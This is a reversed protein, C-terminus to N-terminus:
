QRVAALYESLIGLNEVFTRCEIVQRTDDAKGHYRLRGAEVWAGRDDQAAVIERVQTEFQPTIKRPPPLKPAQQFLPSVRQPLTFEAAFVREGVPDTGKKLLSNPPTTPDRRAAIEDATLRGLAEHEAALADAHSKVQFAYHTPLDDDRYTLEYTDKVFYLPRNTRLEYFRALRGDPLESKKLYAIARGAADLYKREGTEVYMRHLVRVVNQSEGGSIAPPEFRRAWAPHM